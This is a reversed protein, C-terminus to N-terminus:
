LSLDALEKASYNTEFYTFLSSWNNPTPSFHPKVAFHVNLQRNFPCFNIFDLYFVEDNNWQHLFQTIPLMYQKELPQAETPIRDFLEINDM